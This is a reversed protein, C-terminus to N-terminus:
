FGTVVHTAGRRCNADVGDNPPDAVFTGRPYAIKAGSVCTVGDFYRQPQATLNQVAVVWGRKGKPYTAALALSGPSGGRLYGFEGGVAHPLAHPCQSTFTATASAPVARDHEVFGVHTKAVASAPVLLAVLAVAFANRVAGRMPAVKDASM